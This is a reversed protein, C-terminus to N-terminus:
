RSQRFLDFEKESHRPYALYFFEKGAWSSEGVRRFMDVLWRADEQSRYQELARLKVELFGSIDIETTIEDDPRTIVNGVEVTDMGTFTSEPIAVYYLKRPKGSDRSFKEFATATAKGIAIHDPHGSIGDPGFTVVVDPQVIEMIDLVKGTVESSDVDALEGDIYGLRYVDRIGTIAAAARQEEARVVSTEVGEPVDLRTGKEGGTATVLAVTFGRNVYKATTGGAASTEDDPHAFVLLIQGSM